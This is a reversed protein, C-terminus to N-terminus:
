SRLTRPAPPAKLQTLDATSSAQYHRAFSVFIVAGARDIHRGTVAHLKDLLNCMLEAKGFGHGRLGIKVNPYAQDILAAIRNCNVELEAVSDISRPVASLVKEDPLSDKPKTEEITPPEFSGAEWVVVVGRDATFSQVVAKPAIGKLNNHVYQVQPGSLTLRHHGEPTKEFLWSVGKKEALRIVRHLEPNVKADPLAEKKTTATTM